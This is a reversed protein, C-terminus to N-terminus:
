YTVTMTVKPILEDYRKVYRMKLSVEAYQEQKKNYRRVALAADFASVVHNAMTVFLMTTAISFEDNSEKRMNLYEQRYASTDGDPHEQDTWGWQFQDYKGINEYYAHNKVPYSSDTENSIGIDLHESFLNVYQGTENDYYQATDGYQWDGSPYQEELSSIYQYYSWNQDAFAEYEDRIDAGNGQYNAYLYLGAAEIGLFLIPKIFSSKAYLQGTGPVILSYLFARRTSKTKVQYMEPNEEPSGFPDNYVQAWVPDDSTIQDTIRLRQMESLQDITFQNLAPGDTDAQAFVPIALILLTMVVLFNRGSQM